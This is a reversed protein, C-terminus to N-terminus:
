REASAAGCGLRQRAALLDEESGALNAVLEAVVDAIATLHPLDVRAATDCRRHYCRADPTWFFAYPIGLECFGLHDGRTSHGGLAFRTKPARRQLRQLASTAPLGRFAGFVSVRQKSSYSGIMDLNIVQVVRELPLAAPPHALYFSSGVLGLEEAGLAAFAVTRDLQDRPLAAAVALMAALGSANDNAGLHGEGLHDHHALVLVIQSAIAPDPHTGPYYGIVNATTQRRAVVPAGSLPFRQLYGGGGDDRDGAATLGLCGFRDVLAQQTARDGDSGAARGDLAPSAFFALDRALAEATVTAACAGAAPATMDQLTPPPAPPRAAPRSPASASPPAAVAPEALATVLGLLGVLRLVELLQPWPLRRLTRWWLAMRLRLPHVTTM